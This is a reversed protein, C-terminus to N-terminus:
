ETKGMEFEASCNRTTTGETKTCSGGCCFDGCMSCGCNTDGAPATCAQSCAYTPGTTTTECDRSYKIGLTLVTLVTKAISAMPAPQDEIEPAFLDQPRSGAFESPLHLMVDMSLPDIGAANGYYLGTVKEAGPERVATAIQTGGNKLTLEWRIKQFVALVENRTLAQLVLPSTGGSVTVTVSKTSPNISYTVTRSQGDVKASYVIENQSNMRAGDYVIRKAMQRSGLTITQSLGKIKPYTATATATAVVALLTAIIATRYTGM